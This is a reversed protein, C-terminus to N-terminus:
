MRTAEPCRHQGHHRRPHRGRGGSPDGNAPRAVTVVINPDQREFVKDRCARGQADLLPVAQGYAM